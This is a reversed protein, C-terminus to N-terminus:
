GCRGGRCRGDAAGSGFKVHGRHIVFLHSGPDGRRFVIADQALVRWEAIAAVRKLSAEGLSGFLTTRALAEVKQKLRTDVAGSM